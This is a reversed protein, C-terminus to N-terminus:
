HSKTKPDVRGTHKRWDYDPNEEFRDEWEDWHNEGLDHHVRGKKDFINTQKGFLFSLIAKLVRAELVNKILECFLAPTDM